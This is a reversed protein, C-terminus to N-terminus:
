KHEYAEYLKPIVYWFQVIRVPWIVLGIVFKFEIQETESLIRKGNINWWECAKYGKFEARILHIFAAVYIAVFGIFMWLILNILM